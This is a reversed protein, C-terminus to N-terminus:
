KAEAVIRGIQRLARQNFERVERAAEVHGHARLVRALHRYPQPYFGGQPLQQLGLWQLRREASHRRHWNGHLKKLLWHM